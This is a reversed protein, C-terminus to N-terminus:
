TESEQKVATTKEGSQQSGANDTNAEFHKPAINHWSPQEKLDRPDQSPPDRTEANLKTAEAGESTAWQSKSTPKEQQNKHAQTLM